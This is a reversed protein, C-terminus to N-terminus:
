SGVARLGRSNTPGKTEGGSSDDLSELLKTDLEPVTALGKADEILPELQGHLQLTLAHLDRYRSGLTAANRSLEALKQDQKRKEARLANLAAEIERRAEAEEQKQKRLAGMKQLVNAPTDALATNIAKLSKEREALREKVKQLEAAAAARQNAIQQVAAEHASRADTAEKRATALDLDRAALTKELAAIAVKAESKADALEKEAEAIRKLVGELAQKLEDQTCEPDLKLADTAARMLMQKSIALEKWVKLQVDQEVQSM